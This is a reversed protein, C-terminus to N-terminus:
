ARAARFTSTFVAVRKGSGDKVDVEARYSREQGQVPVARARATVAGKRVPALFRTELGVTAFHTGESLLTKVAMAGCTDALSTIAGGHLLGMGQALKIAFPMSLVAEGRQASEIRMGLMKEFPALEVWRTLEFPLDGEPDMMKEWNPDYM